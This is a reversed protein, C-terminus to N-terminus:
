YAPTFKLPMNNLLGAALQNAMNLAHMRVADYAAVDAQWNGALRASAETITTDLHTQMMQNVSEYPLFTLKSLLAATQSGNARWAAVASALAAHDGSKAAQLVPVSGALHQYLLAQLEAASSAGVYPLFVRAIAAPNQLLRAKAVEFDGLGSAFSIIVTRTLQVHEDWASRMGTYVRLAVGCPQGSYFVAM